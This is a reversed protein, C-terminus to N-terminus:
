KKGIGKEKQCRILNFFASKRKEWHWTKIFLKKIGWM